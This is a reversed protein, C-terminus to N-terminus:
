DGLQWKTRWAKVSARRAVFRWGMKRYVFSPLKSDYETHNPNWKIIKDINGIDRTKHVEEAKNM